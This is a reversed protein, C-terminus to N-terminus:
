WRRAAVLSSVVRDIYARLKGAPFCRQRFAALAFSSAALVGRSAVEDAM